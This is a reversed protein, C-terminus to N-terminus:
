MWKIAKKLSLRPWGAGSLYVMRSKVAALSSPNTTADAPGYAFWRCRAGSLYGRWYRVVWNKCALHWKQRGVLLMLASFADWMHEFIVITCWYIFSIWFTFIHLVHCGYLGISQGMGYVLLLSCHLWGLMSLVYCGCAKRSMVVRLEGGGVEYTVYWWVLKFGIEGRRTHSWRHIVGGM